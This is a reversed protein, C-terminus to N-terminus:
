DGFASGVWQRSAAVANGLRRCARLVALYDSDPVFMLEISIMFAAFTHLGLVLGIGLHFGIGAMLALRRTRHHAFFLFPFSVQFAVTGYTLVAVLMSHHILVVWWGTWAFEGVRVIYYLATGNRWLEGGVKSLGAV